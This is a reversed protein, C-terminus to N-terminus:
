QIMKQIKKNHVCIYEFLYNYCKWLITGVIVLLGTLLCMNLDLSALSFFDKFFLLEFIFITIMSGLLLRRITNFPKCLKYQYILMIVTTIIVTVTSSETTTLGSNRSLFLFIFVTSFVSLGTPLANAIIKILFNGRVRDKNPELALILSPAGITIFNM